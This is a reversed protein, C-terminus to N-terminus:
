ATCVENSEKNIRQVVKTKYGGDSAVQSGLYKFRDAEELSKGNLRVNKRSVNVYRSPRMVKSMDVNAVERTVM